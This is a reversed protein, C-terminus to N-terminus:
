DHREIILTNEDTETCRIDAKMIRRMQALTVRASLVSNYNPLVFAVAVGTELEKVMQRTLRDTKITKTAETM